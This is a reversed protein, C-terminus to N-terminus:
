PPVRIQRVAVGVDVMGKVTASSSCGTISGGIQVGVVGGVICRARQRQRSVSCNEITGWGIWWAALVAAM